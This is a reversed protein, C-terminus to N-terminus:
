KVYRLKDDKKMNSMGIGGRGPINTNPIKRNKEGKRVFIGVDGGHQKELTKIMDHGTNHFDLDSHMELHGKSNKDIKVNGHHVGHINSVGHEKSDIEKGFLAQRVVHEHDAEGAKFKHFAAEGVGLPKSAINRALKRSASHVSANQMHSFGGYGNFKSPHADAKLSGYYVPKGNHDHLAFDAKVSGEIKHIGAVKYKKGGVHLDIPKGGNEKVHHAIQSHISDIQMKESNLNKYEGPKQLHNIPIKKTEGEHEVHAHYISKGSNSVEKSVKSVKLATGKPIGETDRTTTYTHSSRIEPTLYKKVHDDATPGSAIM